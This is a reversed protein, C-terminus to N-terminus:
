VCVCVCLAYLTTDDSYCACLIDLTYGDSYCMCVCAMLNLNCEIVYSEQGRAICPFNPSSEMTRPAVWMEEKRTLSTNEQQWVM